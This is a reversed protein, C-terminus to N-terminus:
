DHRGLHGVALHRFDGGDFVELLAVHDLAGLPRLGVSVALVWLPELLDLSKPRARLWGVSCFIAAVAVISSVIRSSKIVGSTACITVRIISALLRLWNVGYRLASSSRM